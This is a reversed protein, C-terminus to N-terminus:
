EDVGDSDSEEEDDEEILAADSTLHEDSLIDYMILTPHCEFSLRTKREVGQKIPKSDNARRRKVVSDESKIGVNADQNQVIDDHDAAVVNEIGVGAELAAMLAALDFNSDDEKLLIKKMRAVPDSYRQFADPQKPEGGQLPQDEIEASSRSRTPAMTYNTITPWLFHDNAESPSLRSPKNSRHTEHPSFAFNM